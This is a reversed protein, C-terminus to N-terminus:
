SLIYKSSVITLVFRQIILFIFEITHNLIMNNKVTNIVMLDM